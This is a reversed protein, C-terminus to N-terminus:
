RCFKNEFSFLPSLLISQDKCLYSSSFIKGLNNNTKIKTTHRELTWAIEANKNSSFNLYKVQTKNKKRQSSPSSKSSQKPTSTFSFQQSIQVSASLLHYYNIYKRKRGNEAQAINGRVTPHQEQFSIIFLL